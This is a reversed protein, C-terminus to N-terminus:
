NNLLYDHISQIFYDPNDLFCMHSALPIIKIKGRYMNSFQLKNLYDRNVLIDNEGHLILIKGIFSELLDIENPNNGASVVKGLVDRFYPDTQQIASQLEIQHKQNGFAAALKLCQDDTLQATYALQMEPLPNFASAADALNSLPPTGFLVIGEVVDKLEPLVHISLHGGLSHGLLTVHALNLWQVFNVIIARINDLHYAREPEHAHENEGHGPLDLALLHYDKLKESKLLPEFLRCNLSNGHIFVLSKEKDPNTELYSISQGELSITKRAVM